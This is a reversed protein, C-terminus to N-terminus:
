CGITIIGYDNVDWIMVYWLMFGALYISPKKSGAMLFNHFIPIFNSFFWWCVMISGIFDWIMIMLMGYCVMFFWPDMGLFAHWGAAAPRLSRRRRPRWAAPVGSVGRPTTSPNTNKGQKSHSDGHFLWPEHNKIPGKTTNKKTKALNTPTRRLRQLNSPKLCSLHHRQGSNEKLALWSPSYWHSVAIAM